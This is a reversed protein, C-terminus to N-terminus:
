VASLRSELEGIHDHLLSISAREKKVTDVGKDIEGDKKKLRLKHEIYKADRERELEQIRRQLEAM